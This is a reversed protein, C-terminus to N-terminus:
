LQFMQYGLWHKLAVFDTHTFRVLMPVKVIIRGFQGTVWFGFSACLCKELPILM